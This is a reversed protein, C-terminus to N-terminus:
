AARPHQGRRKGSASDIRPLLDSNKEHIKEGMNRFGDADNLINNGWLSAGCKKM